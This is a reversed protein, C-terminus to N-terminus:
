HNDELIQDSVIINIPDPALRGAPDEVLAKHSEMFSGVMPLMAESIDKVLSGWISDGSVFESVVKAWEQGKKVGELKAQQQRLKVCRGHEMQFYVYTDFTEPNEYTQPLRHILRETWLIEIRADHVRMEPLLFLYTKHPAVVKKYIKTHLIMEPSDMKLKNKKDEYISNSANRVHEIGIKERGQLEQLSAARHILQLFERPVGASAQCLESFAEVNEFVNEFLFREFEQPELKSIEEIELGIHKQLVQIYFPLICNLDNEVYVVKDLDIDLFIDNGTEYGIPIPSDPTVDTCLRTRMPICGIKVYMGTVSALTRKLMDALHPQVQLDQDMDSWEDILLILHADDLLGLLEFLRQSVESFPLIVRGKLELTRVGTKKKSGKASASLDWGLKKPDSLNLSLGSSAEAAIEQLSKTEESADGAPLIRIAGGEILDFLERSLSKAKKAATSGGTLKQWFSDDLRSTVFECLIKSVKKLVEVYLSLAKIEPRDAVHSASQHISSGHIYIPIVRKEEFNSQFEEIARKLLHTKGTGRRGFIVQNRKVMLTDFFSTAAFAKSANTLSEARYSLNKVANQWKDILGASTIAM